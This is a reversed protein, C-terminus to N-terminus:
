LYQRLDFLFDARCDASIRIAYFCYAQGSRWKLKMSQRTQVTNWRSPERHPPHVYIAPIAPVM